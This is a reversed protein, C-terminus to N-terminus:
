FTKSVTFAFAEEGGALGTTDFYRLDFDLGLASVTLGINWDDYDDGLMDDDFRSFGYAGDIGLGEVGTFESLDLGATLQYYFADGIEGYFDPSYAITGGVEVPGIPYSAGGYLEVFDQSGTPLEPSDPYAYYLVGFDFSIDNYSPAIGAYLDLEMTTDDGFDVSSGWTGAYFIGQAYDFGGQIAPGDDTQTIGRFVYNTTLAVNASLEGPLGDASAGAPILASAALLGAM